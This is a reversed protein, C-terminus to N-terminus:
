GTRTPRDHKQEYSCLLRRESHQLEGALICFTWDWTNDMTYRSDLRMPGSIRRLSSLGSYRMSESLCESDISRLCVDV